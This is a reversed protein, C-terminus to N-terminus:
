RQLGSPGRGAGGAATGPTSTPTEWSGLAAIGGNRHTVVLAGDGPAGASGGAVEGPGPPSDADSVEIPLLALVRLLRAASDSSAPVVARDGTSTRVEVDCGSALIDLGITAAARISREPGDGAADDPEAHLDVVIPVRAGLPEVFDRVVLEGTRALVPWHLRAVRDGPQYDRLDALEDGAPRWARAPGEIPAANRQGVESPAYAPVRVEAPVPCVAVHVRTGGGVLRAALGFPDSVWVRVPELALLGRTSTPVPVDMSWSAGPGVAPVIRQELADRWPARGGRRRRWRAVLRGLAAPPATSRGRFAGRPSPAAHPRKRPLGSPPSLAGLGPRSLRWRPDSAEVLLPGVQDKGTNKLVFRGATDDGVLLDARGVDSRVRLSRRARAATWLVWVVAVLEVSAVAVALLVFEEVGAALGVVFLGTVVLLVATGRITLV